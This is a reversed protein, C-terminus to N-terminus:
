EAVLWRQDMGYFWLVEARVIVYSRLDNPTKLDHINTSSSLLHAPSWRSTINTNSFEIFDIFDVM